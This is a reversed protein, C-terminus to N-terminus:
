RSVSHVAKGNKLSHMATFGFGYCAQFLEGVVDSHLNERELSDKIRFADGDAATDAGLAHKEIVDSSLKLFQVVLTGILEVRSFDHATLILIVCVEDAGQLTIQACLQLSAMKFKNGEDQKNM